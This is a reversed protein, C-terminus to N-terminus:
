IIANMFSWGFIRQSSTYKITTLEAVLTGDIKKEADLNVNFPHSIQLLFGKINNEITIRM